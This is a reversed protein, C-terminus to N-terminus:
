GSARSAETLADIAAGYSMGHALTFHGAYLDSRKGDLTVRIQFLTSNDIM